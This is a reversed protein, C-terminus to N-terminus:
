VWWQTSIYSLTLIKLEPKDELEEDDPEDESIELEEGNERVVLM